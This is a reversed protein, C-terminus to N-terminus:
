TQCGAPDLLASARVKLGTEASAVLAQQIGIDFGADASKFLKHTVQGLLRADKGREAEALGARLADM